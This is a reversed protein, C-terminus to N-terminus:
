QPNLFCGNTCADTDITNGDDCEEDGERIGNGCVQALCTLVTNVYTRSLVCDTRQQLTRLFSEPPRGYVTPFQPCAALLGSIWRTRATTIESQMRAVSAMREETTLLRTAIREMVPTWRELLFQMVNRGHAATAGICEAVPAPTTGTPVPAYMASVAGRAQIVCANFLDAEADSFGIYGVETLQGVTCSSNLTARLERIAADIADGVQDPDCTGGHLPADRCRQEIDFVTDFCLQAARSILRLCPVTVPLFPARREIPIPQPPARATTLLLGPLSPTALVCVSLRPLTSSMASRQSAWWSPPLSTSSCIMAPRSSSDAQATM